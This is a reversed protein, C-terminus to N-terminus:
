WSHLHQDVTSSYDKPPIELEPEGLARRVYNILRDMDIPKAIREALLDSQEPPLTLTNGSVVIVPADKTEPQAKLRGLVQLGDPYPLSLELMILEPRRDRAIRVAEGFDWARLARYGEERLLAVMLGGITANDEVVLITKRRPTPPHAAPAQSTAAPRSGPQAPQNAAGAQPRRPRHRGRGRKRHRFAM